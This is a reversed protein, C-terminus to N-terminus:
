YERKALKGARFAGLFEEGLIGASINNAWDSADVGIFVFGARLTFV